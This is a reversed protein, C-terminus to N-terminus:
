SIQRQELNQHKTISYESSNLIADVVWSYLLAM